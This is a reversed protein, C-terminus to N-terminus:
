HSKQNETAQQTAYNSQGAVGDRFAQADALLSDAEKQVALFKKEYQEFELDKTV